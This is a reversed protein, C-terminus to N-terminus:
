LCWAYSSGEAVARSTKSNAELQRYAQLLLYRLKRPHPVSPDMYDLSKKVAVPIVGIEAAERSLAELDCSVLSDVVEDEHAKLANVESCSSSVCTAMEESCSSSVCTAM